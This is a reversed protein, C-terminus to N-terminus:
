QRSPGLEVADYRQKIKSMTPLLEEGSKALRKESDVLVWSMVADYRQKIKSMTPHLEEGFKV